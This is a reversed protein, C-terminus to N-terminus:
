KKAKKTKKKPKPKQLVKVTKKSEKVTQQVQVVSGDSLKIPNSVDKMTIANNTKSRKLTSTHLRAKVMKEKDKDTKAIKKAKETLFYEKKDSVSLSKANKARLLREYEKVQIEKTLISPTNDALAKKIKEKDTKSLKKQTGAM